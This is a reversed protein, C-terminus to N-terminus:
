KHYYVSRPVSHFIDSGITVDDFWATGTNTGIVEIYIEMSAANAPPVATVSLRTWNTNGKPLNASSIKGLYTHNIDFWSFSINPNGTVNAGKAWATATYSQNPVIYQIPNLYFGPAGKNSSVSHSIRVSRLGSHSVSSDCAFTSTFGLSVKQYVRWLTPLNNTDCNEFGNNFSVDIPEGSYMRSLTLGAPKLTEDSRYLGFYQQSTGLYGTLVNSNNAFDSYNWPSAFPLGSQQAAYEVTRIYQDQEAEQSAKTQSVDGLFTNTPLTSYGVEGILLPKSTGIIHLAEQFTLYAIAPNMYFHFEYFDVPIQNSVQLALSPIGGSVSVTIPINGILSHAYPIMTKAWSVAYPNTSHLENQLDIFAIRPDNQYSRLVTGAWSKSGVIDTYNSFLDFLTLDVKLGHNNALGIVQSLENLKAGYPTPYGFNTDAPIIIRVYNAHLVTAIKSFDSDVTAADWNTWMYFWGNLSPYYNVGRLSSIAAVNSQLSPISQNYSVRRAVFNSSFALTSVPPKSTEQKAIVIPSLTLVIILYLVIIPTTWSLRRLM